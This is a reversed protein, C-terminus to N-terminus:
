YEGRKGVVSYHYKSGVTTQGIMGIMLISRLLTKCVNGVARPRRHQVVDSYQIVVYIGLYQLIINSAPVLGISM